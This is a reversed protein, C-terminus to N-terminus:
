RSLLEWGKEVTETTKHVGPMTGIGLIGGILRSVHMTTWIDAALFSPRAQMANWYRALSPRKSIEAVMGVFVLRALFVTWVVDAIGYTPSVMVTDTKALHRDLQELLDIAENRRVETLRLAEQPNFTRMREAFVAARDRYADALDRHADAMALLHRHAKALKRPILLRAMQNHALFGGITLDEIPFSYHLDVWYRMEADLCINARSFAFEAILRSQDINRDMLALTPVSMNPNLRAYDPSQQTMRFHIDVFVPEYDIGAEVLALRSIMSYYSSPAHFLRPKEISAM